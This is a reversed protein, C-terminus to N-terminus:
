QGSSGSPQYLVQKEEKTEMRWQWEDKRKGEGGENLQLMGKITKTQKFEGEYLLLQKVNIQACLFSVSTHTHKFITKLLGTGQFM